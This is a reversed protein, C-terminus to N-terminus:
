TSSTAGPQLTSRRGPPARRQAHAPPGCLVSSSIRNTIKASNKPSGEPLWKPLDNISDRAAASTPIGWEVYFPGLNKGVTRSFRVM